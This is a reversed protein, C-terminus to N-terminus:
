ITAIENSILMIMIILYILKSYAVSGNIYIM